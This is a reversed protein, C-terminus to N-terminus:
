RKEKGKAFCYTRCDNRTSKKEKKACKIEDPSENDDDNENKITTKDDSKNIAGFKNDEFLCSIFCIVDEDQEKEENM